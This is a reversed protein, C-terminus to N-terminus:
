TAFRDVWSRIAIFAFALFVVAWLGTYFWYSIPRERRNGRATVGGQLVYGTRLQVVLPIAAALALLSCFTARGFSDSAGGVVAVLILLCSASSELWFNRGEISPDPDRM